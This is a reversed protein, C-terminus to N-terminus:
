RDTIAGYSVYGAVVDYDLAVHRVVASIDLSDFAALTDSSHSDTRTLREHCDAFLTGYNVVLSASSLGNAYNVVDSRLLSSLHKGRLVTLGIREHGHVESVTFFLEVGVQHSNRTLGVVPHYYPEPIFRAEDCLMLEVLHMFSLNREV